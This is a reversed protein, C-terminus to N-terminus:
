YTRFGLDIPELDHMEGVIICYPDDRLASKLAANFSRTNM